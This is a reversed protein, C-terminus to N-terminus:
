IFNIEKDPATQFYYFNSFKFKSLSLQNACLDGRLKDLPQIGFLKQNM